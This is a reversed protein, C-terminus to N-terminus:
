LATRGRPRMHKQKKREYKKIEATLAITELQDVYLIHVTYQTSNCQAQPLVRLCIRANTMLSPPVRWPYTLNEIKRTIYKGRLPKMSKMATKTSKTSVSPYRSAQSWLECINQVIFLTAIIIRAFETRYHRRNDLWGRWEECQFSLMSHFYM